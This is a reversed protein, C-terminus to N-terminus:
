ERMWTAEIRVPYRAAAAKPAPPYATTVLEDREIRWDVRSKRGVNGPVNRDEVVESEITGPALERHTRVMRMPGRGTNCETVSREGSFEIRCALVQEVSSGDSFFVRSGTSKWRGELAPPPTTACAALLLLVAVIAIRRM